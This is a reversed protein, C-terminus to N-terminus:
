VTFSRGAANPARGGPEFVTASLDSGITPWTLTHARVHQRCCEGDSPDRDEKAMPPYLSPGSVPPPPCWRCRPWGAPTYRPDPGVEAAAPDSGGASAADCARAAKEVEGGGNNGESNWPGLFTSWAVMWSSFLMNASILSSSWCCTTQQGGETRVDLDTM